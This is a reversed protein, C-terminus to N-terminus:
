TIKKKKSFNAKVAGITARVFYIWTLVPGVNTNTCFLGTHFHVTYFTAVNEGFCWGYHKM